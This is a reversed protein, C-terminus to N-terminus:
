MLFRNKSYCWNKCNTDINLYKNPTQGGRYRQTKVISNYKRRAIYSSGSVAGQTHFTSNSRKITPEQTPCGSSDITCTPKTNLEYTQCRSYLYSHFSSLPKQVRTGSCDSRSHNKRKDYRLTPPYTIDSFVEQTQNNVNCSCDLIKRWGKIMRGRRSYGNSKSTPSKPIHDVPDIFHSKYAKTPIRQIPM